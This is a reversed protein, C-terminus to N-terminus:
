FKKGSCWHRVIFGREYALKVKTYVEGKQLTLFNAHVEHIPALEIFSKEYHESLDLAKKLAKRGVGVTKHYDNGIFRIGNNRDPLHIDTIMGIISSKILNPIDDDELEDTQPDLKSSYRVPSIYVIHYSIEGRDFAEMCPGLPSAFSVGGDVHTECGIKVPPVVTPVACSAMVAYTASQVCDNLYRAGKIHIDADKESKTCWLQAKGTQQCHTGIWTEPQGKINGDLAGVFMEGTGRDFLSLKTMAVCSNLISSWCVWPTMYWSSDVTMLIANLRTCFEMYSQADVVSAVDAMILLMATVAGGSTGMIKDMKYGCGILHKAIAIQNCFRAGSIPMVLTRTHKSKPRLTWTRMDHIVEM